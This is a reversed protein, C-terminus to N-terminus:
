LYEFNEFESVYEIKLAFDNINEFHKTLEKMKNEIEVQSSSKKLELQFRSLLIQLSNNVVHKIESSQVKKLEPNVQRLKLKDTIDHQFGVFIDKDNIKMPLLLLRNIFEEGNKKYNTIDQICADNSAFCNRMFNITDVETREGQLFALNKGIVEEAAYGTNLEFKSNAFLCPRGLSNVDVITFCYPFHEAFKKLTDLVQLGWTILGM